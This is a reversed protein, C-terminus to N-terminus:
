ACSPTRRSIPSATCWTFATRRSGGRGCSTTASTSARKIEVLVAVQKGSEAAQILLDLLPSQAGIRYLTMKIAVVHPDVAAAHVFTEVTGFSEYPPSRAPRRRPHSRLDRDSGRRAAVPQAALVLRGEARPPAPPHTPGLRQPRPTGALQVVEDPSIGLGEILVQRMRAPMEVDLQLMSIPGQRLQQLRGEVTQLLDEEDAQDLELDADRVVRFLHAGEVTGGLFLADINACVVDELMVFAQGHPSLSEPLAIFRPLVTPVTVRAFRLRGQYVVTVAVSMSRNALFPLPRGPDFALPTLVPAIDREFVGSV